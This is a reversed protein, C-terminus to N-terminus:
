QSRYVYEPLYTVNSGIYIRENGGVISGEDMDDTSGDTNSDFDNRGVTTGLLLGEDYDLMKGECVGDPIGVVTGLM